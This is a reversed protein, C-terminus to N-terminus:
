LKLLLLFFFFDWKLIGIHIVCPEVKPSVVTSIGQRNDIGNCPWTCLTVAPDLAHNYILLDFRNCGVNFILKQM